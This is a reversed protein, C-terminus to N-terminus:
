HRISSPRSSPGGKHEPIAGSSAHAHAYIYMTAPWSAPWRLFRRRPFHIFDHGGMSGRPRSVIGALGFRFRMEGSLPLLGVRLSGPGFTLWHCSRGLHPGLMVTSAISCPTQSTITSLGQYREISAEASMYLSPKNTGDRASLSGIPSTPTPRRPDGDSPRPTACLRILVSGTPPAYSTCAPCM